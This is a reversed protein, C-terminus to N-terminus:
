PPCAGMKTKSINKKTEGEKHCRLIVVSFIASHQTVNVIVIYSVVYTLTVLEVQGVDNGTACGSADDCTYQRINVTTPTPGTGRM